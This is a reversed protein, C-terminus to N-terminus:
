RRGKGKLGARRLEKIHARAWAKIAPAESGYTNHGGGDWFVRELDPPIPLACEWATWFKEPRMPLGDSGYAGSVSVSVGGIRAIGMMWHGLQSLRVHRVIARLPLRVMISNGSEEDLMFTHGGILM